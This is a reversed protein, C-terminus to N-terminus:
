PIKHNLPPFSRMSQLLGALNPRWLYRPLPSLKKSKDSPKVHGLAWLTTYSQQHFIKMTLWSRTLNPPRLGEQRLFIVSRINWMVKCTWRILPSHSNLTSLEESYTSMRGIKTAMPITIASINHNWNVTSRAIGRSQITM